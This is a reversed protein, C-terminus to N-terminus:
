NLYSMLTTWAVALVLLVASHSFSSMAGGGGGGSGGSGGSDGSGTSNGPRTNNGTGTSNGTQTNNVRANDGNGQVASDIWDSYYAVDTYVGPLRPLACEIGWSVIGTLSKNCVLPGGSDGACADREGRMYGACIMGQRILGSAFDTDTTCQNHGIIPLDVSLLNQALIGKETQGWGTAQCVTGAATAITARKITQITPHDAPVSGNLFLLAIDNEYTALNFPNIGYVIREIDFQLTYPTREFRDLTGMVVIFQSTPRYVGTELEQNVFCHAASLVVNPEILSGGCIHGSGFLYIDRSRRRISVQHKTANLSALTGNIIRGGPVNLSTESVTAGAASHLILLLVSFLPLLVMRLIRVAM